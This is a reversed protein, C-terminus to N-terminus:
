VLEVFVHVLEHESVKQMGEHGEQFLIDYKCGVSGESVGSFGNQDLVNFGLVDQITDEDWYYEAIFFSPVNKGISKWSYRKEKSSSGRLDAPGESSNKNISAVDLL